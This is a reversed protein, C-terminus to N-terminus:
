RGSMPEHGILVMFILIHTVLLAPVIVTPIYYAAGLAGPDLNIAVGQYQAFVLDISGWINFLWVSALAWSARASLSLMAVIALIAAGLDGLAAPIAFASPLSPSVVGSILFSLGVFRIAHPPLLFFLAEYKTLTRILPWLYLRALLGFAVFFGLINLGFIADPRMAEDKGSPM